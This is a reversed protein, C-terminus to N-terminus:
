LAKMDCKAIYNTKKFYFIDSSLLIFYAFIFKDQVLFCRKRAISFQQSFTKNMKFVFLAVVFCATKHLNDLKECQM